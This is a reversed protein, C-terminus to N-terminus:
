CILVIKGTSQSNELLYHAKAVETMPIQHSIWPKIQGKELLVFLRQLDEQFWDLREKKKATVSFLYIPNGRETTKMNAYKSWNSIWDQFNGSDRVSTHGYGIFRGNKGLTQFSREWNLGGIPDFVADIGDPQQQNIVQVFDENRYDIPTADLQSVFPLNVLSATGYMKIGALKGLQLMASGVGGSAGHVLVSEGPSVKAVRHLMQYATVYNLIVAVAQIADLGDPVTVLEDPKAYVYHAYSGTGDFFVAVRDGIAFQNITEGVDDIVGIADYGPTFPPVPTNPYLGERRLIDAFAVGAVIVKVRVEDKQIKRLPEQVVELVEPGGYRTVVVSTNRM